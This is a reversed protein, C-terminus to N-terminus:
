LDGVRDEQGHEPSLHGRPVYWGTRPPRARPGPIGAPHLDPARGPVPPTRRPWPTSPGSGARAAPGATSDALM